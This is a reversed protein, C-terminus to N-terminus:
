STRNLQRSWDVVFTGRCVETHGLGTLSWGKGTFASMMWSVVTEENTSHAMIRDELRHADTTEVTIEKEFCQRQEMIDRAGPMTTSGHIQHPSQRAMGHLHRDCDAISGPGRDKIHKDADLTKRKVNISCGCTLSRCFVLCRHVGVAFSSRLWHQSELVATASSVAIINSTETCSPCRQSLM